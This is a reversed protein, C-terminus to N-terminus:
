KEEGKWIECEDVAAITVSGCNMRDVLELLSILQGLAGVAVRWAQAHDYVIATRHAVDRHMIKCGSKLAFKVEENTV